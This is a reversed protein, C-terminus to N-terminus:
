NVEQFPFYRLAENSIQPRADCVYTGLWPIIAITGMMKENPPQLM